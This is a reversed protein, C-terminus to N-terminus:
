WNLRYPPVNPYYVFEYVNGYSLLDYKYPTPFINKAIQNSYKRKNFEYKFRLRNNEIICVIINIGNSIPVNDDMELFVTDNKIKYYGYLYFNNNSGFCSSDTLFKKNLGDFCSSQIVKGDKFFRVFAPISDSETTKYVGDCRVVNEPNYFQESYFLFDTKKYRYHDKKLVACDCVFVSIVFFYLAAKVLFFKM